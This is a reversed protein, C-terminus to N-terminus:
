PILPSSGGNIEEAPPTEAPPTAAPRTQLLHIVVLLVLSPGGIAALLRWDEPNYSWVPALATLVLCLGIFRTFEPPLLSPLAAAFGFILVGLLAVAVAGLLIPSHLIEM